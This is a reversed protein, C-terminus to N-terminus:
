PIGCDCVAGYPLAASRKCYCSMPLVVFVYSGANKEEELRNCFYFPCLTIYLLVFVFVSDGSM